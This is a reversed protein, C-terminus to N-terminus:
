HIPDLFPAGPESVYLILVRLPGDGRNYGTMRVGPPEVLVEGARVTATERGEMELTFVGELVHVTVPHRHTHFPTRDGPRFSAAMVLVEQREGRPMGTVVERHLLTPRAMGAEQALAPTAALLLAFALSIRM